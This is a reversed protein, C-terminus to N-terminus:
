GDEGDLQLAAAAAFSTSADIGRLVAEHPAPIIRRSLRRGERVLAV